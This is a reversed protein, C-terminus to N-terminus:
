EGDESEAADDASEADAPAEDAFTRHQLADSTVQVTVSVQYVTEADSADEVTSTEELESSQLNVDALGPVGELADIWESAIPLTPSTAAFTVVGIADQTLDDVGNVVVPGPGVSSIAVSDITVGEPLVAAIAYVYSSWNVETTLVFDRATRVDDISNIVQVVPSYEKKEQALQDATVLAEEQRVSANDRVLYAAGFALAALIIAGLITWIMRRQAVAVIRKDTVESPLLNVQPLAPIGLKPDWTRRAQGAAPAAQQTVGDTTTTM